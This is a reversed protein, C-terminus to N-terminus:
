WPLGRRMLRPLVQREWERADEFRPHEREAQRFLPPHGTKAGPEVGIGLRHHLLEHYLVFGVFWDPVAPQDLLPHIRIVADEPAYSGLRITRQTRRMRRRVGWTVALDGPEGFARMSEAWLLARLDHTRGATRLRRRKPARREPPPLTAILARMLSRGRAGDCVFSTVADVAEEGRELVRRSVRVEAVGRDRRVSVLRVRNSTLVVSIRSRSRAALRTQLEAVLTPIAAIEV